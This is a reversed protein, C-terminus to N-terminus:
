PNKKANWINGNYYKQIYEFLKIITKAKKQPMGAVKIVEIMENEDANLVESISKYKGMFSRVAKTENEIM